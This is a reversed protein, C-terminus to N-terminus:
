GQRAYRARKVNEGEEECVRGADGEEGERGGESRGSVDVAQEVDDGEAVATLEAAYEAQTCVQGDTRRAEPQAQDQPTGYGQGACQYQEFVWSDSGSRLCVFMAFGAVLHSMAAKAAVRRAPQEPLSGSITSFGSGTCKSDPSSHWTQPMTMVLKGPGFPWAKVSRSCFMRFNQEVLSMNAQ